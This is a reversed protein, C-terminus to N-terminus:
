RGFAEKSQVNKAIYKGSFSMKKLTWIYRTSQFNREKDLPLQSAKM